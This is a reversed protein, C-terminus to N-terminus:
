RGSYCLTALSLQVNPAQLLVAGCAELTAGTTVVDDVLLVHKGEIEAPGVLEFRGDMNLWREIRNKKTQSETHTTRIVVNSLVPKGLAESMGTCLVAAQNYGRKREKATFLPLPILADVYRFRNSNALAQGMLRGLYLGIEKNGRYKLQHMLHQMMSQKAFYCHATASTVPLRGWFLKEVPNNPYVEFATQPLLSHCKLCLFHDPQLVDTGCGECVHPFLFHLLSEKIDSLLQMTLTLIHLPFSTYQKFKRM